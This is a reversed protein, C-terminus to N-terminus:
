YGPVGTNPNVVQKFYENLNHTSNKAGNIHNTLEPILTRQLYENAKAPTLSSNSIKFNDLRFEMFADYAPHNGHLGGIGEFYKELEIANDLMNPHFGDLAGIQIVDHNGGKTWTIIHHAETGTNSGLGLTNRIDSRAGFEIKNGVKKWVLNVTVGNKNAFTKTVTTLGSAFEGAIDFQKWLNGAGKVVEIEKAYLNSSVALLSLVLFIVHLFRSRM